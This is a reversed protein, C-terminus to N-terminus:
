IRTRQHAVAKHGVVQVEDGNRVAGIGQGREQAVGMAAVGGIEICALALGAVEPLATVVGAREVARM